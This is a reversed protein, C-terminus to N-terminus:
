SAMVLFAIDSVLNEFVFTSPAHHQNSTSVPKRNLAPFVGVDCIPKHRHPVALPFVLSTNWGQLKFMLIQSVNNATM